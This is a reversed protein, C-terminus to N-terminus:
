CRGYHSSTSCSVSNYGGGVKLLQKHKCHDLLKSVSLLMVSGVVAIVFSLGPVNGMVLSGYEMSGIVPISLTVVVIALISVAVLLWNNGSDMRRVLEWKRNLLYGVCLYTYLLLGQAISWINMGCEKLVRSLAYSVCAEVIIGVSSYNHTKNVAFLIRAWFLALLFWLPGNTFFSYPGILRDVGYFMGVIPKWIYDASVPEGRFYIYVLGFPITLIYFFLYPVLLQRANKMVVDVFPRSDQKLFLGSVLFFFPMHFSYIWDHPFGQLGSHGFIMLFIGLCKAIDVFEIRNNSM